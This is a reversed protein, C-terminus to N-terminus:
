IKDNTREWRKDAQTLNYLTELVKQTIPLDLNNYLKTLTSKPSDVLDEYRLLFYRIAHMSIVFYRLPINSRKGSIKKRLKMDDLMSECLKRSASQVDM